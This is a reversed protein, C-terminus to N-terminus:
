EEHSSESATVLETKEASRDAAQETTTTTSPEPLTRNVVCTGDLFHNRGSTNIVTTPEFPFSDHYESDQPPKHHFILGAEVRQIDPPDVAATSFCLQEGPRLHKRWNPWNEPKAVSAYIDEAGKIDILTRLNVLNRLSDHTCAYVCYVGSHKPISYLENERWYGEFNLYYIKASM